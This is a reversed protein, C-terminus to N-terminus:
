RRAGQECPVVLRVTTGHGVRSDLDLRGCLAAARERMGLIGAAGEDVRASPDFGAGDDEVVVTFTSGWRCALVSLVSPGAHKLANAMSEQAVRYAAAEVAPSLDDVGSLHVDVRVGHCRQFMEALARLAAEFGIEEVAIPRLTWMLTRTESLATEVLRRLAAVTSASTGGAGEELSRALLAASTLTQGLGDHLERALRLREEHRAHVVRGLLKERRPAHRCWETRM